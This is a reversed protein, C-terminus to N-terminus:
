VSLVSLKKREEELHARWYVESKSMKVLEEKEGNNNLEDKILEQLWPPTQEIDIILKRLDKIEKSIDELTKAPRELKKGSRLYQMVINVLKEPLTFSTDVTGMDDDNMWNEVIRKQRREHREEANPYKIKSYVTYSKEHGNILSWLKLFIGQKNNQIIENPMICIVDRYDLKKILDNEFCICREYKAVEDNMKLSNM